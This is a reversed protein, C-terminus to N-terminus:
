EETLSVKMRDLLPRMLYNLMTREGTKIFLQVPMGPRIKLNKLLKMGKPTVFATMRYYPAGTREDVMRDASVMDVEGPVHPTRKDNFATFIFDVKLGPHVKDILNVPIRAEVVLKDGSPIIDMMKFGPSIVGGSTFVSLGEVTGDVPSKVVANALDYDLSQLRMKLSDAEKQVEALQSRVESEYGQKREIYTRELDLLKNRPVYGDKALDRMGKLQESLIALEEHIAKTRSEFLQTQTKMDDAVRPNNKQKTLEAPFAISNKEDREATLRAETALDSYYQVRSVEDQAEAQVDNMQVLVQGAKVTDGDKVLIQSVVGGTPHQIAKRNTSVIVTGSVPVGQDLPALAAWLLFGGVGLIVIWWGLRAHAKADTNVGMPIVEHYIADEVDAKKAFLNKM